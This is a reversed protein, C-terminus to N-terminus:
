GLLLVHKANSALFSVHQVFEHAHMLTSHERETCTHLYLGHSIEPHLRVSLAHCTHDCITTAPLTFVDALMRATYVVCTHRRRALLRKYTVHLNIPSLYVNEFPSM